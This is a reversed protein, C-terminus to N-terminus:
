RPAGVANRRIFRFDRFRVRMELRLLLPPWHTEEMGPLGVEDIRRGLFDAGFLDNPRDVGDSMYSFRLGEDMEWFWDSGAEAFARLRQELEPVTGPPPTVVAIQKRPKSM